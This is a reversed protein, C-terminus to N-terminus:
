NYPPTIQIPKYCHEVNNIWWSLECKASHSLTMNGEFNGINCKLVKIKDREITRYYLPGFRAVPLAAILKSIVQAAERVTLREHAHLNKCTERIGTIKQVKLTVNMTISNILLGLFVIKNSPELISKDPHICFGLLTLLQSTDEINKICENYVHSEFIHRCELGDIQSDPSSVDFRPRLPRM